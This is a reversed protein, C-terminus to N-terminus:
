RAGNQSYFFTSIRVSTLHFCHTQTSGFRAFFVAAVGSRRVIAATPQAPHSFPSFIFFTPIHMDKQRNSVPPATKDLPPHLLVIVPHSRPPVGMENAGSARWGFHYRAAIALKPVSRSASYAIWRSAHTPRGESWDGKAYQIM